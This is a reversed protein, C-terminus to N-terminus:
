LNALILEIVRKRGGKLDLDLLTKSLRARDSKSLHLYEDLSKKILEDSSERGIYLFGNENCAFNHKEENENQAISVSPIGLLALEYAVNGRSTFAIDAKKMHDFIYRVNQNVIINEYANYKLAEEANKKANGIAFEFDYDRYEDSSVIKLLRDTYNSPDAGGFCVFISKVSDNIEIPDIFLFSEDCLYYRRGSYVNSDSNEEFLANIVLDAKANGPGDDEFNILKTQPMCQRLNDMYECSTKLIDSIFIDYRNHRCREYLEDLGDIGILNHVTIGFHSVDTQNIDYYIDPETCFDDALDLARSIHGLGLANSGNVYIGIRYDNDECHYLHKLDNINLKESDKIEFSSEGIGNRNEIIIEDNPAHLFKVNNKLAYGIADNLTESELGFSGPKFHVIMDYDNENITYDLNEAKIGKRECIKKVNEIDTLLLLDIDYDIHYTAHLTQEIQSYGAIIRSYKNPIDNKEQKAILLGLLRMGENYAM